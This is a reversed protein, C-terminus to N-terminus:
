QVAEKATWAAPDQKVKEEAHTQDIVFALRRADLAKDIIRNAHDEDEAGSARMNVIACIVSRLEEYELGLMAQGQYRKVEDWEWV